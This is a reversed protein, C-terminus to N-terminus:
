QLFVMEVVMPVRIEIETNHQWHIPQKARFPFLSLSNAQVYL